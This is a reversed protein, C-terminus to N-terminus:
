GAVQYSSLFQGRWEELLLRQNLWPRVSDDVTVWQRRLWGAREAFPLLRPPYRQCLVANTGASTSVLM